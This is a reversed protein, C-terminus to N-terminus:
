FTVRIGLQSEFPTLTSTYQGYRPNMTAPLAANALTPGSLFESNQLSNVDFNDRNFLNFFEAIFDAKARSGLPLGYTLRLNMQAFSPGDETFRGVGPLRDSSKGDGNYDYGRRRNWPQGSGYDFIPAVTFNLPLRIV